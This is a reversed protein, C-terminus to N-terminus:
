HLKMILVQFMLAADEKKKYLIAAIEFSRAASTDVVLKEAVFNLKLTNQITNSALFFPNCSYQYCECLFVFLKRNEKTSFNQQWDEVM